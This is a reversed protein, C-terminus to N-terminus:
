EVRESELVKVRQKVEDIRKNINQIGKKTMQKLDKLDEVLKDVLDKPIIYSESV